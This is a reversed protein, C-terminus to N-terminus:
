YMNYKKLNIPLKIKEKTTTQDMHIKKKSSQDLSVYHAEV